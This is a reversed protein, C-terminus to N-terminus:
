VEREFFVESELGDERTVRVSKERRSALRAPIFRWVGRPFRVALWAELGGQEAFSLLEDVEELRVYKADDRTVKVEVALVRGLRAAILDAAPKRSAGSAAVRIAVWGHEHFLSVLEREAAIGKAKRRAHSVM